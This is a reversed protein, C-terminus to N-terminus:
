FTFHLEAGGTLEGEDSCENYPDVIDLLRNLSNKQETVSCM